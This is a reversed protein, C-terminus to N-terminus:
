ASPARFHKRFYIRSHGPPFHELVGFQTFGQKQYFPVAQFSFTDVYAGRCGRDRADREALAMLASGVGLGRLPPPVFLMEIRLWQFLTSGWFGGAVVGRDDRIPIVLLRPRAPGILPLSSAELARFIAQFTGPEPSDSPVLGFPADTVADQERDAAGASV